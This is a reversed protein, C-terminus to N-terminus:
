GIARASRWGWAAPCSRGPLIAMAAIPRGKREIRARPRQDESAGLIRLNTVGLSALQDLEAELRAVDGSGDAALYAGYWLNVGVFAYPKGKLYFRKDRVQVFPSADTKAPEAHKSVTSAARM